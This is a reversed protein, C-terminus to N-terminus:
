HWETCVSNFLLLVTQNIKFGFTVEGSDLRSWSLTANTRHRSVSALLSSRYMCTDRGGLGSVGMYEKM